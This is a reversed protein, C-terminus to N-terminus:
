TNKKLWAGFDIGTFSNLQENTPIALSLNIEKTDGVRVNKRPKKNIIKKRSKSNVKTKSKAKMKTRTGAKTKERKVTKTPRKQAGIDKNAKEPSRYRCSM